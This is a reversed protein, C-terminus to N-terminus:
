QALYIDVEQRRQWERGCGALGFLALGDSHIIPVLNVISFESSTEPPTSRKLFDNLARVDVTSSKRHLLSIGQKTAFDKSQVRINPDISVRFTLEKVLVTLSRKKTDDGTLVTQGPM